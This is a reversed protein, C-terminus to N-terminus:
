VSNSGMLFWVLKSAYARGKLAQNVSLYGNQEFPISTVHPTLSYGLKTLKLPILRWNWQLTGILITTSMSTFSIKITLM